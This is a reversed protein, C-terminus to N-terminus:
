KSESKSESKTDLKADYVDMIATEAISVIEFDSMTGRMGDMVNEYAHLFDVAQVMM